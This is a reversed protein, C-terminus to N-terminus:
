KKNGQLVGKRYVKAEHVDPTKKSTTKKEGFSTDLSFSVSKKVSRCSSSKFDRRVDASLTHCSPSKRLATVVGQVRNTGSISSKKKLLSTTKKEGAFRGLLM